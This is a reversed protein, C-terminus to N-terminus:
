LECNPRTLQELVEWARDVREAVLAVFKADSVEQTNPKRRRIIRESLKIEGVEVAALEPETMGRCEAAYLRNAKALATALEATVCEITAGTLDAALVARATATGHRAQRVIDKGRFIRPQQLESSSEINFARQLM